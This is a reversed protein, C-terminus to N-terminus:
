TYLKITIYKTQTIEDNEQTYEQNEKENKRLKLCKIISIFNIRVGQRLKLHRTEKRKRGKKM